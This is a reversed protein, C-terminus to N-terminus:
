TPYM